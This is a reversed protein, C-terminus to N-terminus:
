WWSRKKVACPCPLLMSHLMTMLVRALEEYGTLDMPKRFCCNAGRAYLEYIASDDNVGTVIMVPVHRLAPDDKLKALTSGGNLPMRYDLLIVDPRYGDPKKYEERLYDFVTRCNMILRLSCDGGCMKFGEEILRAEVPNDDVILIQKGPM